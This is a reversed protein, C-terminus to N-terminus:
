CTFAGTVRSATGLVRGSFRGGRLGPDLLVLQDAVAYGRGRWTFGVAANRQRGPVASHATIAFYPPKGTRLGPVFTGINVTFAGAAGRCLGNSFRLSRGRFQVVARAAGCFEFAPQGAVTVRHLGPACGVAAGRGIGPTSVAAVAIAGVLAVRASM